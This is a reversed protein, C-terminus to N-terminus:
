KNKNEKNEKVTKEVKERVSYVFSQMDDMAKNAAEGTESKDDFRFRCGLAMGVILAPLTLWFGIILLLVLLLTPFRVLEEDRRTVVFSTKALKKILRKFGPVITNGAGSKKASNKVRRPAEGEDCIEGVVTRVDAGSKETKGERELAVMADFLDWDNAELAREADQASVGATRSLKEIMDQNTMKKDEQFKYDM